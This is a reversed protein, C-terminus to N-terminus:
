RSCACHRRTAQEFVGPEGQQDHQRRGDRQV